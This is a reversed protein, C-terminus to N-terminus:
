PRFQVLEKGVTQTFKKCKVQSLPILLPLLYVKKEFIQTQFRSWQKNWIKWRLYDRRSDLEFASSSEIEWLASFINDGFCALWLPASLLSFLSENLLDNLKRTVDARNGLLFVVMVLSVATFSKNIAHFNIYCSTLIALRLQVCTTTYTTSLSVHIIYLIILPQM